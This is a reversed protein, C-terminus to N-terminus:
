PEAGHESVYEAVRKAYGQSRELRYADRFYLRNQILLPAQLEATKAPPYLADGGWLGVREGRRLGSYIWHAQEIQMGPMARMILPIRDVALRVGFEPNLPEMFPVSVQEFGKGHLMALESRIASRDGVIKWDADLPFVWNSDWDAKLTPRTAHKLLANRKGIQGKYIRPPLFEVDLGWREAETIIAHEQSLESEPKADDLLSFAGDAAVVRDALVAAGEIAERLLEPPEDYWSLMATVIV